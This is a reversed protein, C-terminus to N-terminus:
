LAGATHRINLGERMESSDLRTVIRVFHSNDGSQLHARSPHHSDPHRQFLAEEACARRIFAYSARQIGVDRTWGKIGSCSHAGPGQHAPPRGPAGLPSGHGAATDARPHRRQQWARGPTQAARASPSHEITRVGSESSELTLLCTDEARGSRKRLGLTKFHLTVLHRRRSM